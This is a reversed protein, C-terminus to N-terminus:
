QKQEKGVFQKLIADEQKMMRVNIGLEIITFEIKNPWVKNIVFHGLAPLKHEPDGWQGILLTSDKTIYEWHTNQFSLESIASQLVFQHNANFIFVAKMLQVKTKDVDLDPDLPPTHMSTSVDVPYWTGVFFTDSSIVVSDTHASVRFTTIIIAFFVLITKM